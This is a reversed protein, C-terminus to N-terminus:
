GGTLQSSLLSQVVSLQSGAVPHAVHRLGAQVVIQARNVGAIRHGPAADGRRDKTGGPLAAIGRVAIAGGRRVGAGPHNARRGVLALILADAQTSDAADIHVFGEAGGAVISIGVAGTVEAIASDAYSPKLEGISGQVERTGDTTPTVPPGRLNPFRRHIRYFRRESQRRGPPSRRCRRTRRPRRGVWRAGASGPCSVPRHARPKRHCLPACM